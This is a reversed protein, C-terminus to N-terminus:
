DSLVDRIFGESKETTPPTPKNQDIMTAGLATAAGIGILALVSETITNLEDNILWLFVYSAIVLFFWFAMQFLSLSYPRQAPKVGKMPLGDLFLVIQACDNNAKAVLTSFNNVHVSLRDNLGARKWDAENYGHVYSITAPSGDHKDFTPPADPPEGPERDKATTTVPVTTTIPATTTQGFLMASVCILLLAVLITRM